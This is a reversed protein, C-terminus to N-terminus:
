WDFFQEIGKTQQSLAGDCSEEVKEWRSSMGTKKLTRQGNPDLLGKVGDWAM